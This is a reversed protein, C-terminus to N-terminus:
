SCSNDCLFTKLQRKFVTLSPALTISLCLNEYYIRKAVSCLCFGCRVHSLFRQVSKTGVLPILASTANTPYSCSTETNRTGGSYRNHMVM